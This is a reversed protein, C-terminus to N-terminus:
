FTPTRATHCAAHCADQRHCEGQMHMSRCTHQGVQALRHQQQHGAQMVWPLARTVALLSPATTPTSVRGGGGRGERARQKTHVGAGGPGSNLTLSM